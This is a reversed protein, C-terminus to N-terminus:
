KGLHFTLSHLWRRAIYSLLILAIYKNILAKSLLEIFPVKLQTKRRMSLRTFPPFYDLVICVDM